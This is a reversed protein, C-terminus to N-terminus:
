LERFNRWTKSQALGRASQGRALIMVPRTKEFLTNQRKMFQGLPSRRLMTKRQNM